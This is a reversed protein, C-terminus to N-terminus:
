GVLDYNYTVNKSSTNLSLGPILKSQFNDRDEQASIGEATYPGMDLIWPFEFYDDFKLARNTEWDYHFRKLQIVLTQPLSRICMRKTTNRKVSCKECFYANDGKLLEGKVFQALSEQLNNSKVTLNLAM